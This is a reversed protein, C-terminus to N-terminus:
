AHQALLRELDAHLTPHVDTMHVGTESMVNMAGLRGSDGNLHWLTALEGVLEGFIPSALETFADLDISDTGFRKKTRAYKAIHAKAGVAGAAADVIALELCLLADSPKGDITITTDALYAFSGCDTLPVMAGLAARRAADDFGKSPGMEAIALVESDRCAIVFQSRPGGRGAWDSAVVTAVALLVPDSM